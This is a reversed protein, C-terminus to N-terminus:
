SGARLREIARRLEESEPLMIEGRSHHIKWARSDPEPEPGRHDENGWYMARKVEEISTIDSGRINVTWFFKQFTVMGNPSIRVNLPERILYRYPVALAVLGFVLFAIGIAQFGKQGNVALLSWWNLLTVAVFTGGVILFLFSGALAEGRSYFRYVSGTAEM